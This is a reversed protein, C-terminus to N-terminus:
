IKIQISKFVELCQHLFDPGDRNPAYINCLVFEHNDIKVKLIIFRGNKDTLIQSINFNLNNMFLICVGGSHASRNSFFIDNGWETRWGDEQEATCHTEQLFIIHPNKNKLWLFMEQRKNTERLGWVNLSIINLNNM